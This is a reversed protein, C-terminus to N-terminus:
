SRTHVTGYSLTREPGFGLFSYRGFREAAEVSELPFVNEENAFKLAASHPRWTGSPRRTCLPVVGYERAPRRAGFLGPLLSRGTVNM